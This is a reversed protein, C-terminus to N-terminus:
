RRKALRQKALFQYMGLLSSITGILGVQWAKLKGGWLMGNPLTSGAHIIDICNRIISINQLLQKMQNIYPDVKINSPKDCHKEHYKTISILRLTRILNLYNSLLWFLSSLMDWFGPNKVHLLKHEALWCTKDIPYYITDAINGIVGIISMAKDPESSGLGYQLTSQLQPLDDFLRLTARTQSMKSSFIKLKQVTTPDTSMTSALKAAYCLTRIVKDRGNYNSLMQCVDDLWDEFLVM